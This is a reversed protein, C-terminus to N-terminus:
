ANRIVEAANRLKRKSDGETVQAFLLQGTVLWHMEFIKPSITDPSEAKLFVTGKSVRIKAAYGPLQSAVQQAKEKGTARIAVHQVIGARSSGTREHYEDGTTDLEPFCIWCGEVRHGQENEGQEVTVESDGDHGYDSHTNEWQALLLCPECYPFSVGHTRAQRQTMVPRIGCIECRASKSM